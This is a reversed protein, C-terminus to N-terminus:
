DHIELNDHVSIYFAISLWFHSRKLKRTWLTYFGSVIVGTSLVWQVSVLSLESLSLKDFGTEFFTSLYALVALLSLFGLVINFKTLM